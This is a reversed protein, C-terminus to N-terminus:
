DYADGRVRVYSKNAKTIKAEQKVGVTVSSEKNKLV